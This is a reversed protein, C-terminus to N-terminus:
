GHTCFSLMGLTIKLLIMVNKFVSGSAVSILFTQSLAYAQLRPRAASPNLGYGEGKEPRRLYAAPMAAIIERAHLLSVSM